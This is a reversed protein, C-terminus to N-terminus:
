SYISEYSRKKKLKMSNKSKAEETEKIKNFKENM